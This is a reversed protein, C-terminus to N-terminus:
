PGTGPPRAASARGPPAATSKRLVLEIPGKVVERVDDEASTSVLLEVARAGLEELPMRITTLPPVLHAALVLDHISIVSVDDPVRCGLEHAAHLAGVASAINAAVVATPPHPRRLLETMGAAGGEPTYHGPAITRASAELGAARVARVYGQRRRRASDNGGPGALLGLDTHGLDVLHRVAMAVAGQDNQVVYRKRRAGTWNVCLWPLGLRALRDEEEATVGGAALLLGDVRNHGLLDLYHDLGSGAGRISGTVLVSGVGAAAGEAGRVIEAYAPNAFDPVLMGLTRTRSTRLSRAAANPRYGLMEIADLVRKRTIDRISLRPDDNLLRSVVSPDVKALAAVDAITSRRSAKQGGEREDM